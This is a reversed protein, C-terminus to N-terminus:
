LCCLLYHLSYYFFTIENLLIFVLLCVVLFLLLFIFSSNIDRTILPTIDYRLVVLISSISFPLVLILM